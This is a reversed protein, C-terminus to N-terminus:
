KGGENNESGSLIRSVQAFEVDEGIVMRHLTLLFDVRQEETLKILFSPTM